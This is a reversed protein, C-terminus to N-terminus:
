TKMASSPLTESRSTSSISCSPCSSRSSTSFHILDLCGCNNFVALHFLRAQQNLVPQRGRGDADLAHALAATGAGEGRVSVKVDPPRAPWEGGRPGGHETREQRRIKRSVDKFAQEPEAPWAAFEDSKS